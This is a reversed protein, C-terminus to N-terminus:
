NRIYLRGMGSFGDAVQNSSLYSLNWLGDVSVITPQLVIPRQEVAGTGFCMSTTLNSDMTVTVRPVM